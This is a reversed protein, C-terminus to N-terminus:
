LIKKIIEVYKNMIKEKEYNQITKYTNQTIKEKQEKSLKQIKLLTQYIEKTIKEEDGRVLFGNQSDKIIGDIGTNYTGITILGRGMAELYAIGFTEYVSPLIFVDYNDLTEYILNHNIYPLIRINKELNLNKILKNLQENQEGKGYIDYIFDFNNQKKIENLALIVKDLNKRKILQSLTVLKIKKGQIFDDNLKKREIIYKKEIFSPLIFDARFYEKLFKNRAGVLDSKQLSTM